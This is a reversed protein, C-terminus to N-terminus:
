ELMTSPSTFLFDPRTTILRGVMSLPLTTAQAIADGAPNDFRYGHAVAWKMVAGIRQRVRKATEPKANWIPTLVRMVDSTTLESVSVDAMAPYAYQRLTNEWQAAHKANRWTPRLLELTSAAAEEFTPVASRRREALPDGGRKAIRANEFAAARADALTVIPYGGLGIERTRGRVTIRQVWCKAGKPTVVLRLGYGGRGDGHKGPPATKVLAATLRKTGAIETGGM